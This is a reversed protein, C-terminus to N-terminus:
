KKGARVGDCPGRGSLVVQGDRVIFHVDEGPRVGLLALVVRPLVVRGLDDVKRADVHIRDTARVRDSDKGNTAGLIQWREPSSRGSTELKIAPGRGGM